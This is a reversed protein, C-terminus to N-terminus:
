EIAKIWRLVVSIVYYLSVASTWSVLFTLIEPIPIIWNLNMFFDNNLYQYVSNFPTEPLLNFIITIFGGIQSILYNLAKVIVNM